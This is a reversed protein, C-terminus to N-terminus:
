HGTVTHVQLSLQAIWDHEPLRARHRAAGKPLKPPHIYNAYARLLKPILDFRRNEVVFPHLWRNLCEIQQAMKGLRKPLYDFQRRTMEAPDIWAQTQSKPLRSRLSIAVMAIAFLIQGRLTDSSGPNRNKAERLLKQLSRNACADSQVARAVDALTDQLTKNHAQAKPQVKM